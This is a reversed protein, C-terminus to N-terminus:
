LRYRFGLVTSVEANRREVTYMADGDELKYSQTVFTMVPGLTVAWDALFRCAILASAEGVPFVGTGSIPADDLYGKANTRMAGIGFGLRLEWRGWVSTYSATALARTDETDFWGWTKVNDEIPMTVGSRAVGAGITWRGLRVLDVEARVGAHELREDISGALMLWRGRPERTTRPVGGDVGPMGAPRPTSALTSQPAPTSASPPAFPPPAAPEPDPDHREILDDAVWSAVLVGASQADPVVRERVRGAGDRAFLYYGGDTPVARVDLTTTCRPEAGVWAEIADRVEDPARSITVECASPQTVPQAVAPSAILLLPLITRM